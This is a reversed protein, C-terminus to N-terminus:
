QGGAELGAPSFSPVRTRNQQTLACHASSVTCLCSAHLSRAPARRLPRRHISRVQMARRRYPMQCESRRHVDPQVTTRQETPQQVTASGGLLATVATVSCVAAALGVVDAGPSSVDAFNACRGLWASGLWPLRASGLPLAVASPTCIVTSSMGCRATPATGGTPGYPRLRLPAPSAAPQVMSSSVTARASRSSSCRAIIAIRGCTPVAPRLPFPRGLRSRGACLCGLYPRGFRPRAQPARLAIVTARPDPKDHILWVVQGTLASRLTVRPQM